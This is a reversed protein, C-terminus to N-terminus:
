SIKSKTGPISSKSGGFIRIKSASINRRHDVKKVELKTAELPETITKIVRGLYPLLYSLWDISFEQM